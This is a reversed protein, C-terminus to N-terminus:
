LHRCTVVMSESDSRLETGAFDGATAEVRLGHRYLLSMLEDPYYIRHAMYHDSSGGQEKQGVRAVCLQTSHSYPVRQWDLQYGKAQEDASMSFLKPADANGIAISNRAAIVFVGSDSLHRKASSLLGDIDLPTFCENILNAPALVLDFKQDLLLCRVDEKILRMNVNASAAKTSALKLAAVSRDVGTIDIGEQAIPIAVRGTGVGLELVRGKMRTALTKWFPLDFAIHGYLRDYLEPAEDYLSNLAEVRIKPTPVDFLKSLAPDKLLM